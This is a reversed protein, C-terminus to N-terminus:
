LDPGSPAACGLHALLEGDGYAGAGRGRQRWVVARDADVAFFGPVLEDGDAAFGAAAALDLAGAAVFPYPFGTQRAVAAAADDDGPVLVVFTAGCARLRPLMRGLRALQTRCVP